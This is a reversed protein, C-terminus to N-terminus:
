YFVDSTNHCLATEYSIILTQFFGAEVKLTSIFLSAAPAESAKAFILSIIVKIKMLIFEPLNM